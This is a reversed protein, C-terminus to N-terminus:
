CGVNVLNSRSSIASCGPIRNHSFQICPVQLDHNHTCSMLWSTWVASRSMSLKVACSRLMLWGTPGCASAAAAAREAEDGTVRLWPATLSRMWAARDETSCIACWSSPVIKVLGQDVKRQQALICARPHQLAQTTTLRVQQEWSGRAYASAQLSM